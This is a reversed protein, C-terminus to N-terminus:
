IGLQVKSSISILFLVMMPKGHVCFVLLSQYRGTIFIDKDVTWFNGDDKYSNGSINVQKRPPHVM